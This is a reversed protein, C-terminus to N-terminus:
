LAFCCFYLPMSSTVSTTTWIFFFNHMLTRKLSTQQIAAPLTYSYGLVFFLSEFSGSNDLMPSMKVLLIKVRKQHWSDYYLQSFCSSFKALFCMPLIILLKVGGQIYITQRLRASFFIILYIWVNRGVGNLTLKEKADLLSHWMFNNMKFISSCQFINGVSYTLFIKYNQFVSTKKPFETALIM